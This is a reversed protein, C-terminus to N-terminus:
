PVRSTYGWAITNAQSEQGQHPVCQNYVPRKGNNGSGEGAVSKREHNLGM